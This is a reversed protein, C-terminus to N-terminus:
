SRWFLKRRTFLRVGYAILVTVILSWGFALWPAPGRSEITEKVTTLSLLPLALMGYGVYGIMPNQGNDVLLGLWRPREVLEMIIIFAVLVFIALGCGQFFWAFTPPVKKTGDYPDLMLGLLLWLAGWYVMQAVLSETPTAPRRAVYLAAACLGAAISTTAFVYRGQVGLLLLPVFLLLIGALATARPVSWRDLLSEAAALRSARMWGLLMDGVITGPIAICLYELHSFEYLWPVPSFEYVTSMWTKYRVLHATVLLGLIALRGPLSHRTALWVLSGVVACYALILVILDIREPRFGSGDPFRIWAFMLLATMWGAARVVLRRVRSWGGPLRVFIAFLVVFGLLGIMWRAPGPQLQSVDSGFHQRFLAFFVLLGGRLLVGRVIEGYGARRELRPALALPIAIGLTFIFFPFVLDPWTLGPLDMHMAHDPPPEQAHYMWAPLVGFPQASVLVMGLIALGRLADVALARAPVVAAESVGGTM